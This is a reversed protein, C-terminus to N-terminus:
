LGGVYYGSFFIIAGVLAGTTFSGVLFFPWRYRDEKQVPAPTEALQALTVTGHRADPSVPPLTDTVNPDAEQYAHSFGEGHTRRPFVCRGGYPYVYQCGVGSTFAGQQTDPDSPALIDTVNPDGERYDEQYAHSFRPEAHAWRPFPCRDGGNYRADVPYVYQCEAVNPDDM